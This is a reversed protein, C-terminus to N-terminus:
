ITKVYNLNPLIESISKYLIRILHICFLSYTKKKLLKLVDLFTLESVNQLYVYVCNLKMVQLIDM